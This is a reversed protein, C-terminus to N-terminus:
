QEGPNPTIPGSTCNDPLDNGSIKFDDCNLFLDNHRGMGFGVLAFVVLATIIAIRNPRPLELFDPNIASVLVWAIFPLTVLTLLLTITFLVDSTADEGAPDAIWAMIVWVSPILLILRGLWHKPRLNTIFSAVLVISSIVWISQLADFFVVDFAGFNFGIAFAGTATAVAIILTARDTASPEV